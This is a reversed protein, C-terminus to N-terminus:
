CLHEVHRDELRTTCDDETMNGLAANIGGQAAVTHSRTPFLKSICATQTASSSTLTPASKDGPPTARSSLWEEAFAGEIWGRCTRFRCSSRSWRSRCRSCRVAFCCCLRDNAATWRAPRRSFSAAAAISAGRARHHQIQWQHYDASYLPADAVTSSAVQFGGLGADNSHVRRGSKTRPSTHSDSSATYSVPVEKAKSVPSASIVKSRAASTTFARSSSAEAITTLEPVAACSFAHLKSPVRASIRSLM